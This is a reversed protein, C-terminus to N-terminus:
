EFGFVKLGEALAVVVNAHEPDYSVSVNVRPDGDLVQEFQVLGGITPLFLLIYHYDETDQHLEHAVPLTWQARVAQVLAPLPLSPHENHLGHQQRDKRFPEFYTFAPQENIVGAASVWHLLAKFGEPIWYIVNDHRPLVFLREPYTPCFIIQDGEISKGLPISVQLQERSLVADPNEWFSAWGDVEETYEALIQEPPFLAVVDCYIGLGLTTMFTYYGHPLPIGLIQELAVVHSEPITVLRTSVRYVADFLRRDYESRVTSHEAAVAILQMLTDLAERLGAVYGEQYARLNGNSTTPDAANRPDSLRAEYNQLESATRTVDDICDRAFQLGAFRGEATRLQQSLAIEIKPRLNELHQKTLM